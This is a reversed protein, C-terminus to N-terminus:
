TIINAICYNVCSTNLISQSTERLQQLHPDQAVVSGECCNLFLLAKSLETVTRSYTASDKFPTSLSWAKYKCLRSSFDIAAGVLSRKLAELSDGHESSDGCGQASVSCNERKSFMEITKKLTKSVLRFFNLNDRYTNMEGKDFLREESLLDDDEEEVGVLLGILTMLVKEPSIRWFKEVMKELLKHLACAPQLDGQLSPDIKNIVQSAVEKVDLDDEQLLNFLIHWIDTISLYKIINLPDLLLTETNELIVEAVALQLDGDQETASYERLLSFWNKYLLIIKDPVDAMLKYLLSGFRSTVKIISCKVSDRRESELRSLSLSMVDTTTFTKESADGMRIELENIQEVCRPFQALVEFVRSLCEFHWERFLAMTLLHKLLDKSSSVLTFLPYVENKNNGPNSRSWKLVSLIRDLVALRVEYSSSNLLHLYVSIRGLVVCGGNQERDVPILLYKLALNSITVKCIDSGPWSSVDDKIARTLHECFTEYVPNVCVTEKSCTKLSLVRDFVEFAEEIVMPAKSDESLIWTYQSLIPTLKFAVIAQVSRSLELVSDLLFKIQLLIGHTHSYSIQADPKTPLLHILELLISDLRDKEVLPQIARAAMVRTKFVPSSACHIVLPVFAALNLNTDTGELASPFLRGLVMLVPYLSPHLHLANRTEPVSTAEVFETLLFNYVEPFRHFFARGTLCNKRSLDSDDKSVKVGFIRVMLASLLLTSSNRVSWYKSKFGLISAKLGASIYPAVFDGLKNDKFLVRLINLAHVKPPNDTTSTSTKCVSLELLRKMTQNFCRQENALPETTLLAQAYFPIGASRRTSCLGSNGDDRTIDNLLKDLWQSPLQHLKSIPSRWLRECMMIFGAYALEFAGRHKSALLQTIFYDGIEEIQEFSLLGEDNGDPDYTDAKHTIEGLLLSVEKISRWCCVVLYEPMLTVTKESEEAELMLQKDEETEIIADFNLGPGRIAEAPVNGEPSSDQVVPSVVKAVELCSKILEELMKKWSKSSNYSNLKIDKLVYRICHITPYIPRNAAAIILGKKAVETQDQLSLIMMELFKLYRVGDRDCDTNLQIKDCHAIVKLNIKHADIVVSTQELKLLCRALYASATSDQPRTSVSLEVCTQFLEKLQKNKLVPEQASKLYGQFIKLAEIKNEEFTDAICELITNVHSSNFDAYFSFSHDNIDNQLVDLMSGLMRLCSTRTAFAAGPYLSSFLHHQLWVLFIKYQELNSKLILTEKKAKKLQRILSNESDKMRVFFKKTYASVHQRFSPSQNNLNAPIFFKVLEFEVPKIAETTKKNECLLSYADLRIQEDLSSLAYKLVSVLVVGCWMESDSQKDDLLGMSRGRRLCMILAGLTGKSQSGKNSLYKIMYQLINNSCSMLKPLIYQLIHTKTRKTGSCLAEIVPNVWMTLWEPSRDEGLEKKHSEFLKEYFEGCYSALTHDDLQLIVRETINPCAELLRSTGLSGVLCTLPAYKGRKCWPIDLVDQILKSIFSDSNDTKLSTVLKLHTKLIQDFALKANQRVADLSDDLSTWIYDLILRTDESHGLLRVQLPSPIQTETLSNAKMTWLYILKALVVKSAPNTVKSVLQMTESLFVDTLLYKDESFEVVLHEPNLKSLIGFLFCLYSTSSLSRSNLDIIKTEKLWEPLQINIFHSGNDFMKVLLNSLQNDCCLRLVFTLTIGANCRCDILMNDNRLIDINTIILNRLTNQVGNEQAELKGLLTDFCKQIMRNLLQETVLCHHMAVNLEVPSLAARTLMLFHGHAKVLYDTYPIVARRVCVEGLQFNELLSALIDVNQRIVVSSTDLLITEGTKTLTLNHFIDGLDSQTPKSLSNFFSSLLRRVSIKSGEESHKFFLYSLSRLILKNSLLDPEKKLDQIVQRTKILTEKNDTLNFLESIKENIPYDKMQKILESTIDEM